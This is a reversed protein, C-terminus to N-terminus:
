PELGLGMLFMGGWVHFAFTRLNDEVSVKATPTGVPSGTPESTGEVSSSGGEVSLGSAKDFYSSQTQLGAMKLKAIIVRSGVPSNIYEKAIKYISAQGNSNPLPQYKAEISVTLDVYDFSFGLLQNTITITDITIGSKELEVGLNEILTDTFLTQDTESMTNTVGDLTFILEANMDRIAMTYSFTPTATPFQVESEPSETPTQDGGGPPTVPGIMPPKTIEGNQIREWCGTFFFCGYDESGTLTYCETDDGSPCAHPCEDAAHSWSLGCFYDESQASAFITISTHNLINTTLIICLILLNSLLTYYGRSTQNSFSMKNNIM